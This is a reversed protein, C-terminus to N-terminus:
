SCEGCNDGIVSWLYKFTKIKNILKCRLRANLDSGNEVVKNKFRLEVFEMKKNRIWKELVERWYEFKWQLVNTNDDVLIVYEAFLTCLPAKDQVGKTFEGM